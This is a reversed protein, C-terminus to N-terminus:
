EKVKHFGNKDQYGKPANKLEVILWVIIAAEVAGIIFWIM